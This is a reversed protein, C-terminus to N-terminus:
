FENAKKLFYEVSVLKFIYEFNNLSLNGTKQYKELFINWEKEDIIEALYMNRYNLNYQVNEDSFLKRYVPLYDWAEQLLTIINIGLKTMIKNRFRASQRYVYRIYFPSFTFLNKPVMNIGGFDTKEKALEPDLAWMVARQFKSKNWRWKAPLPIGIELNRRLLLPAISNYVSNATSNAVIAYNQWQTLSFKDIKMSVPTNLYGRISNSLMETFYHTSNTKIQLYNNKFINDPYNKNLPRLKLFMDSNIKKPERYLNLTYVEEWFCDKYFPGGSGNLLVGGFNAQEDRMFLIRGLIYGPEDCSGLILSKEFYEWLHDLYITTLQINHHELNHRKSMQKVNKVEIFDDKGFISTALPLNQNRFSAVIMRTDQGLTLDACSKGFSNHILRATEKISEVMNEVSDQFSLDTIHHPFEWYTETTAKGNKIEYITSPSLRKVDKLISRESLIYYRWMLENFAHQDLQPRKVAATTLLFPTFMIFDESEVWFNTKNKIFDNVVFYTNKHADYLKIVFHGDLKNVFNKGFKQYLNLLEKANYMKSENLAFVSGEFALWNDKEDSYFKHQDNKKFQVIFSKDSLKKFVINKFHPQFVNNIFKELRNIKSIFAKQNQPNKSILLLVGAMM